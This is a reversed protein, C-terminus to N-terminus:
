MSRPEAGVLAMMVSSAEAMYTVSRTAPRTMGTSMRLRRTARGVVTPAAGEAMRKVSVSGSALGGMSRTTSSDESSMATIRVRV